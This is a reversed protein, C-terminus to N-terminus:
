TFRTVSSSVTSLGEMTMAPLSQARCALTASTASRVTRTRLRQTGAATAPMANREPPCLSSCAVALRSEIFRIKVPRSGQGSVNEYPRASCCGDSLAQFPAAAFTACACASSACRARM